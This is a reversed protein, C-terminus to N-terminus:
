KGRLHRLKFSRLLHFHLTLAIPLAPGRFPWIEVSQKVAENELNSLEELAVWPRPRSALTLTGMWLHLAM